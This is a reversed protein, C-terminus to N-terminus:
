RREFLIMYHDSLYPLCVGVSRDLRECAAFFRPYREVLHALYSPPLFAGIGLTKRHIFDTQFAQRLRGPSPYGVTITEGGGTHAQTRQPLRRFATVPQLHALHWGIEWLCVPGMVVLAVASGSRTHGALDAALQDLDLVCNVVGFNAFVDDFIMELAFPRNLDLPAFEIDTHQAKAKAQALMGPSADTATVQLGREALWLADAGTGCGLELLHDGAKFPLHARVLARLWRGLPHDTFDRDYTPAAQDFPHTVTM